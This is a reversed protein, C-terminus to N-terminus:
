NWLIGWSCFIKPSFNHKKEFQSIFPFVFEVLLKFLLLTLSQMTLVPYMKANKPAKEDVLVRVLLFWNRECIFSCLDGLERFLIFGHNFDWRWCFLISFYWLEELIGNMRSLSIVNGEDNPPFHNNFCIGTEYKFLRQITPILLM